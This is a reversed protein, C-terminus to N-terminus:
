GQEGEVRRGAPAADGQTRGRGVVQLVRAAEPWAFLKGDAAPGDAGELPRLSTTGDVEALLSIGRESGGVLFLREGVQVLHLGRQAGLPLSEVLKMYRGRRERVRGSLFRTSLYAAPVVVALAALVRLLEVLVSDGGM